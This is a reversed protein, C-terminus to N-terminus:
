VETEFSEFNHADEVIRGSTTQPEPNADTVDTMAPRLPASGSRERPRTNEPRLARGQRGAQIGLDQSRDPPNRQACGRTHKPLQGLDSSCVDSSWDSIRM